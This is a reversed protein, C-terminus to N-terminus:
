LEQVAAPTVHIPASYDSGGQTGELARQLCLQLNRYFLPAPPIAQAAHNLKGLLRSLALALPYQTDLLRRTDQRIQKIKEGPLRIEMKPTNIIFGLFQIEQTPTLLSKPYNIIFGLNELLFILGATHDRAVTPTTAMILIDDIYIIM